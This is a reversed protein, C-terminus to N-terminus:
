SMKELTQESLDSEGVPGLLSWTWPETFKFTALNNTLECLKANTEKEKQEREMQMM